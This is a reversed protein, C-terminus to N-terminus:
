TCSCVLKKSAEDFSSLSLSCCLFIFCFLNIMGKGLVTKQTKKKRGENNKNMIVSLSRMM